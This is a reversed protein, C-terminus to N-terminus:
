EVVSSDVSEELTLIEISEALIEYGDALSNNSYVLMDQGVQLGEFGTEVLGKGYEFVVTNVDTGVKYEVGAYDLLVLVNGDKRDLTGALVTSSEILIYQAENEGKSVDTLVTVSSGIIVDTYAINVYMGEEPKLIQWLTTDTVNFTMQSGDMVNIVLENESLDAINGVFRNEEMDLLSEESGDFDEDVFDKEETVEVLSKNNGFPFGVFFWVLLLGFMLVMIMLLVQWFAQLKKMFVGKTFKDDLM